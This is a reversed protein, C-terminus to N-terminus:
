QIQFTLVGREVMVLMGLLIRMWALSLLDAGKRESSGSFLSFMGKVAKREGPLLLVDEEDEEEEEWRELVPLLEGRQWCILLSPTLGAM